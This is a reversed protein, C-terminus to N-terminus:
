AFIDSAAVAEDDGLAMEGKNAERTEILKRIISQAAIGSLAVQLVSPDASNANLVWAFFGSALAMGIAVAWFLPAKRLRTFKRLHLKGRLEYLKLLEMAVASAAGVWFYDVFRVFEMTERTEERASLRRLRRHCCPM